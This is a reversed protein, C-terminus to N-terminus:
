PKLDLRAKGSAPDFPFSVHQHIMKRPSPVWTSWSSSIVGLPCAHLHMHLGEAGHLVMGQLRHFSRERLTILCAPLRRRLANDV